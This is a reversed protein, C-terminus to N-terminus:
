RAVSWMTIISLISQERPESCRPFSPWSSRHAVHSSPRELNYSPTLSITTSLLLGCPASSVKFQPKLELKNESSATDWHFLAGLQGGQLCHHINYNLGIRSVSSSVWKSRYVHTKPNDWALSHPSNRNRGAMRRREKQSMVLRWRIGMESGRAQRM